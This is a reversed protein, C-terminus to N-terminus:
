VQSNLLPMFKRALNIAHIRNRVKIKKYISYLHSKVTHESISFDSAIEKNKYGEVLRKIILSEQMTLKEFREFTEQCFAQTKTNKSQLYSVTLQSLTERSFWLQGGAVRNIGKVILPASDDEYFVGHFGSTLLHCEDVETRKADFLIYKTESFNNIFHTASAIQKFDWLILFDNLNSLPLENEDSFNIVPINYLSILNYIFQTKKNNGSSVICLKKEVNLEM